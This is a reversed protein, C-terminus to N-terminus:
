RAFVGAAIGSVFRCLLLKNSAFDCTGGGDTDLWRRACSRPFRSAHSQKKYCRFAFYLSLPLLVLIPLMLWWAFFLMLSSLLSISAEFIM